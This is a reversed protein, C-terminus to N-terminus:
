AGEVLRHALRAAAAPDPAFGDAGMERWLDHCADFAHGGVLVRVHRCEPLSRLASIATAMHHLCPVYSCSLALLDARSDIVLRLLDSAPASAGLWLTNWGAMELFDAVMRSGISHQEGAVCSIVATRGGGVRRISASAEGMVMQTVGTCYHEEAVNLRNCQWLLGVERMAPALVDLYLRGVGNGADIITRGISRAGATDNALLRDLYAKAEEPIAGLAGEVSAPCDGIAALGERVYRAAHAATPPSLMREMARRMAELQRELHDPSAGRHSLTPKCWRAYNAFIEPKAFELSSALFEIHERAVERAALEELALTSALAPAQERVALAAALLEGAHFNM